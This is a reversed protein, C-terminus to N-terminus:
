YSNILYPKIIDTFTVYFILMGLICTWVHITLMEDRDKYADTHKLFTLSSSHESFFGDVWRVFGSLTTEVIALVLLLVMVLLPLEYLTSLSIELDSYQLFKASFLTKLLVISSLVQLILEKRQFSFPQRKM